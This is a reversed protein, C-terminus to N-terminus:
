NRADMNITQHEGLPTGVISRAHRAPVPDFGHGGLPNCRAIRWAAMASGRIVGHECIAIAAYASCSPEFRCARGFLAVIMPSIALRYIAIVALAPYRAIRPRIKV